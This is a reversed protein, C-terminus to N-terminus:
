AKQRNRSAILRRCVECDVEAPHTTMPGSAITGCVAKEWPEPHSPKPRWPPITKPTVVIGTGLHTRPPNRKSASKATATPPAPALVKSPVASEPKPPPSVPKQSTSVAKPKPSPKDAGELVCGRNCRPRGSRAVYCGNEQCHPIM